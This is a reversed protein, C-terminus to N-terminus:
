QLESNINCLESKKRATRFKDCLESQKEWNFFQIKMKFFLKHRPKYTRLFITKTGIGVMYADTIKTTLVKKGKSKINCLESVKWYSTLESNHSTFICIHSIFDSNHSFTVLNEDTANWFSLPITCGFFFM